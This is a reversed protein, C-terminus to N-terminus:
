DKMKSTLLVMFFGSGISMLLLAIPLSLLTFFSELDPTRAKKYSEALNIKATKKGNRFAKGEFVFFAYSAKESGSLVSGSAPEDAASVSEDEGDPSSTSGLEDVDDDFPAAVDYIRLAGGDTRSAASPPLETWIFEKGVAFQFIEKSLADNKESPVPDDALDYVTERRAAEDVPMRMEAAAAGACALLLFVTSSLASLVSLVSRPRYPKNM